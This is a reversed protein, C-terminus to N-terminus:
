ARWLRSRTARRPSRRSPPWRRSRRSRPSRAARSTSAGCAPSARWRTPRRPARCPPRPLPTAIGGAEHADLGKPLHLACPWRTARAPSVLVDWLCLARRAARSCPLRWGRAGEMRVHLLCNHSLDLRTLAGCGALGEAAVLRNGSLDLDALRPLGGLPPPRLLGRGAARLALARAAWAEGGAPAAEGAWATVAARLRDGGWEAETAAPAPGGDLRQLRPLHLLLLPAAAPHLAVPNGELSLERLEPLCSGTTPHQPPSPASTRPTQAAPHSPLLWGRDPGSDKHREKRLACGVGARM